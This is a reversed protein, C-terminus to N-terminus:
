VNTFLKTKEKDIVLCFYSVMNFLLLTYKIYLIDVMMVDVRLQKYTM